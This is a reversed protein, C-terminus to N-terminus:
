FEFGGKSGKGMSEYVARVYEQRIQCGIVQECPFCSTLNREKQCTLLKTKKEDRKEIWEDKLAESNEQM